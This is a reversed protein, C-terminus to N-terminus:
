TDGLSICKEVRCNENDVRCHKYGSTGSTRSSLQDAQAGSKCCRAPIKRLTGLSICKEVRCYRKTSEVVRTDVQVVRVVRCSIAQAGVYLLM